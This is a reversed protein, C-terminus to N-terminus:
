LKGKKWSVDGLYSLLIAVSVVDYRMIDNPPGYADLPISSFVSGSEKFPIGPLLWSLLEM